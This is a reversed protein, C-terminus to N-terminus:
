QNLRAGYRVAIGEVNRWTDQIDQMCKRRAADIEGIGGDLQGSLGRLFGYLLGEIVGEPESALQQEM